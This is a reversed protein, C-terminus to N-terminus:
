LKREQTTEPQQLGLSEATERCMNDAGQDDYCDECVSDALVCPWKDPPWPKSLHIRPDHEKDETLWLMRNDAFVEKWEAPEGPFANNTM